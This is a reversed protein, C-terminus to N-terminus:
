KQLADSPLLMRLVLSQSNGQEVLHSDLVYDFFLEGSDWDLNASNVISSRSNTPM